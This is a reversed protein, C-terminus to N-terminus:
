AYGAFVLREAAAAGSLWASEVRPALCWDGCFVVPRHDHESLLARATALVTPKAHRWREVQFWRPGALFPGGALSAAHLLSTAVDAHPDDWHEASWAGTAHAAILVESAARKSSELGIWQLPEATSAIARWQPRAEAGYGALVVLCRDFRVRGLEETIARDILDPASGLLELARPAPVAVVLVDADDTRPSGQTVEWSHVRWGRGLPSLSRVEVGLAVPVEAALRTALSEMGEPAAWRREVATLPDATLRAGDWRHLRDAWPVIQGADVLPGLVSQFQPDRMTFFPAGCDVAGSEVRRTSLRGGYGGARELIRVDHGRSRLTQAAAIGALGAGIVVAQSMAVGVGSEPAAAAVPIDRNGTVEAGCPLAKGCIRGRFAPSCAIKQHFSGQKRTHTSLFKM